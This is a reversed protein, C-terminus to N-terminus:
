CRIGGLAGLSGLVVGHLLAPPRRGIGGHCRSALVSSTRIQAQSAGTDLLRDAARKCGAPRPAAAVRARRHLLRKARRDHLLRSVDGPLSMAVGSERVVIVGFDYVRRVM